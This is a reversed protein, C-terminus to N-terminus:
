DAITEDINLTNKLGQYKNPYFQYLRIVDDGGVAPVTPFIFTNSVVRTGPKLEQILKEELKNNTKQRLYCTVVTADSLNADFINGRIVKVQDRLGWFTVLFQCYLYRLPDIEIGVAKAGYKRAVMVILRGDGCCLDYLTDEPSVEALDLMRKVQWRPTPIWPAGKFETWLVSVSLGFIVLMMLILGFIEM